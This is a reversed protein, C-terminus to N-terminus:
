DGLFNGELVNVSALDLSLVLADFNSGIVGSGVETRESTINDLDIEDALKVLSDAWGFAEELLADVHKCQELVAIQENACTVTGDSLDVGYAHQDLRL